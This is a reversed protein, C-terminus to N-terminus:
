YTTCEHLLLFTCQLSCFVAILHPRDTLHCVVFSTACVLFNCTYAWFSVTTYVNHSCFTKFTTLLFYNPYTHFYLTSLQVHVHSDSLISHRLCNYVLSLTITYLQTHQLFLTYRSFSCVIIASMFGLAYIPVYQLSCFTGSTKSLLSLTLLFYQFYIVYFDYVRPRVLESCYIEPDFSDDCYLKFFKFISPTCHTNLNDNKMRSLWKKWTKLALFKIFLIKVIKFAVCCLIGSEFLIFLRPNQRKPIKRLKNQLYPLAPFTSFLNNWPGTRM